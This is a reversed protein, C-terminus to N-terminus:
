KWYKEYFRRALRYAALLPIAIVIIYIIAQIATFFLVVAQTVTGLAIDTLANLMERINNMFRNKLNEPWVDVNKRERLTIRVTSEDGRKQKDSLQQEYHRQKEQVQLEKETLEMLLNIKEESNNMERIQERMEEYDTLTRNLLALEDLERQISLRHNKVDFSDVEYETQLSDTFADFNDDPVRVTMDITRYLSSEHKRSDEVYGEHADALMRVHDADSVANDSDIDFRAEKVEVFAGAGADDGPPLSSDSSVTLDRELGNFMGGGAGDATAYPAGGTRAQQQSDVNMGGLFMSVVTLVGLGLFVIVVAIGVSAAKHEEVWSRLEELMYM